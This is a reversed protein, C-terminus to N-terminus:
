AGDEFIRKVIGPGPAKGAAVEALAQRLRRVAVRYPLFPEGAAQAQLRRRRYEKNLVGLDGAQQAQAVRADLRAVITETRQLTDAHPVLKIRVAAAAAVVDGSDARARDLVPGLDRALGWWAVVCGSPDRTVLLRNDRTQAIAALDFRSLYELVSDAVKPISM